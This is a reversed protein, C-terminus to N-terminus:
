ITENFDGFESQKQIEIGSLTQLTLKMARRVASKSGMAWNGLEFSRAVDGGMNRLNSVPMNTNERSERM